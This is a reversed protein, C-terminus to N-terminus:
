LKLFGEKVKVIILYLCYLVITHHAVEKKGCYPVKQWLKIPMVLM